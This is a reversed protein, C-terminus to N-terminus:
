VSTQMCVTNNQHQTSLCGNRRCWTVENFCSFIVAFIDPAIACIKRAMEYNWTHFVLEIKCGEVGNVRSSETGSSKKVTSWLCQSLSGSDLKSLSVFASSPTHNINQYRYMNSTASVCINTCADPNCNFISAGYVLLVPKTSDVEILGASVRFRIRPTPSRVWCRCGRLLFTNLNTCVARLTTKCMHKSPYTRVYVSNSKRHSRVDTSRRGGREQLVTFPPLQRIFVACTGHTCCVRFARV